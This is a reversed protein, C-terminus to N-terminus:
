RTHRIKIDIKILPVESQHSRAPSLMAWAELMFQRYKMYFFTCNYDIAGESMM